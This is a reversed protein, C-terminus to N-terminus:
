RKVSRTGISEIGPPLPVSSWMSIMKQQGEAYGDSTKDLIRTAEYVPHIESVMKLSDPTHFQVEFLQNTTSDRFQCNIGRYANEPDANYFNKIKVAEFGENEFDDLANKVSTTFNEGGEFKITYRVTDAINTAAAEVQGVKTDLYEPADGLLKRTTQPESKLAFEPKIREGGFQKCTENIERTIEPENKKARLYLAHALLKARGKQDSPLEMKPKTSSSSEKKPKEGGGARANFGGAGDTWQNGRFPHGDSEGKAVPVEEAKSVEGAAHGSPEGTADIHRLQCFGEPSDLYKGAIAVCADFDGESGWNIQGDAGNNYWDILGQANGAKHIEVQRAKLIWQEIENM